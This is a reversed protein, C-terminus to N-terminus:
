IDWCVNELELYGLLMNYIELYGLVCKWNRLGSVYERIRDNRVRM